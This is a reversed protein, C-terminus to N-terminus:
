NKFGTLEQDTIVKPLKGLKAQRYAKSRHNSIRWLAFVFSLRVNAPISSWLDIVIMLQQDQRTFDATKEDLDRKSEFDDEEDHEWDFM